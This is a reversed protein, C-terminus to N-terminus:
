HRILQKLNPEELREVVEWLGQDSVRYENIQYLTEPNELVKPLVPKLRELFDIRGGENSLIATELGVHATGRLALLHKYSKNKLLFQMKQAAVVDRLGFTLIKSEPHMKQISKALEATQEEGRGALTSVGRVWPSLYPSVLYSAVGGLSVMKLFKRRTMGREAVGKRMKDYLYCGMLLELSDVVIENAEAVLTISCDVALLPLKNRKAYDFPPKQNGVAARLLEDNTIPYKEPLEFCIGDVGAPIIEQGEVVHIGYAISYKGEPKKITVINGRREIIDGSQIPETRHESM